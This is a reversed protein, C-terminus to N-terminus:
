IEEVVVDLILVKDPEKTWGNLLKVSGRQAANHIHPHVLCVYNSFWIAWDYILDAPPATSVSAEHKVM